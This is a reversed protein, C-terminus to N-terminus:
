ATPFCGECDDSWEFKRSIETLRHLPKAITAFSKIFRRYYSCVGLYSRVEKVNTPRPWKEVAEIKVPDTSFGHESVVHGM